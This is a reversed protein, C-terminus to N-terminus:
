SVFLTHKSKLLVSGGIDVDGIDEQSFKTTEKPSHTVRGHTASIVGNGRKKIAKHRQFVIDVETQQSFKKLPNLMGLMFKEEGEVLLIIDKNDVMGWFDCM